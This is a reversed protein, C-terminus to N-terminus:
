KPKLIPMAPNGAVVTHSQVNKTVISGAAVVSNEGIIVGPLIVASAGIWCGKSLVVPNPTSHGQMSIPRSLDSYSHNSVYIQVNSGILVDDQITISAHPTRADAFLMVGPRIVVNKGIHIKKCNILYAGPRIESGEGFSLLKSHALERMTTKFYLKWHTLPIDPGIRDCSRWFTYRNHLERALKM